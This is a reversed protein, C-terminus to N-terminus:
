VEIKRVPNWEALPGWPITRIQATWDEVDGKCTEGDLQDHSSQVSAGSPFMPYLSFQKEDVTFRLKDAALAFMAAHETQLHHRQLLSLPSNGFRYPVIVCPAHLPNIYDGIHWFHITSYM